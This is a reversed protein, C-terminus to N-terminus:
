TSESAPLSHSSSPVGGPGTSPSTSIPRQIPGPASYRGGGKQGPYGPNSYKNMSGMSPMHNNGKRQNNMNNVNNRDSINGTKNGGHFNQNLQFASTNWSQNMLSDHSSKLQSSQVMDIGPKIYSHQGPRVLPNGLNLASVTAAAAQSNYGPINLPSQYQLNFHQSANQLNQLAQPNPAVAIQLQQLTQGQASGSPYVGTQNGSSGSYYSSSAQLAQVPPTASPPPGGPPGSRIGTSLYNQGLNIVSPQNPDFPIFVQPQSQASLGGQSYGGKNPGVTGMHHSPHMAAPHHHHSLQSYAQQAGPHVQHSLNPHNGSSGQVQSKISMMSNSTSNIMVANGGGSTTLPGPSIRNNQNQPPGPPGGQSAQQHQYSSVSLPQYSSEISTLFLSGYPGANAAQAGAYQGYQSRANTNLVQPGDHPFTQYVGPGGHLHPQSAGYMVTPPSPVAPMGGFSTAGQHMAYGSFPSSLTAHSQNEMGSGQQSKGPQSVQRMTTANPSSSSDPKAIASLAPSSGPAYGTSTQQLSQTFDRNTSDTGKFSEAGFGGHFSNEESGSVSTQEAVSPMSPVDWVRKVSQIKENLDAALPSIPSPQHSVYSSRTSQTISMPKAPAHSQIQQSPASQSSNSQDDFPSSGFDLEPSNEGPAKGFNLPLEKGIELSSSINGGDKKMESIKSTATNKSVDTFKGGSKLNTNEFIVTRVPPNTGDLLSAVPKPTVHPMSTNVSSIKLDLSDKSEMSSSQTMSQHSGQEPRLNATIPKEWANGQPTAPEKPFSGNGETTKGGPTTQQQHAKALFRPPIDKSQNPRAEYPPNKVPRGKVVKESARSAAPTKSVTFGKDKAPFNKKNRVEQFGGSDGDVNDSNDATEHSDM